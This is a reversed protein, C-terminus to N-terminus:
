SSSTLGSPVLSEMARAIPPIGQRNRNKDKGRQAPPSGRCVSVAVDPPRSSPARDTAGCSEPKLLPEKDM